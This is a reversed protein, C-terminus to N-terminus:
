KKIIWSFLAKDLINLWGGFGNNRNQRIGLINTRCMAHHSHPGTSNGTNGSMGIVQGSKVSQYLKVDIRSMHGVLYCWEKKDWIKVHYGYGTSDKKAAIVLGDMPSLLPTGVPTAFDVGDHGALGYKSYFAKNIGFKQSIKYNGVFLDSLQKM